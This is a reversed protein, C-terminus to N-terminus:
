YHQVIFQQTTSTNMSCLSSAFCIRRDRFKEELKYEQFLSKKESGRPYMQECLNSYIHRFVGSSAKELAKLLKLKHTKVGLSLKKEIAPFVIKRTKSTNGKIINWESFKLWLVTIKFDLVAWMWSWKHNRYDILIELPPNIKVVTLFAAGGM